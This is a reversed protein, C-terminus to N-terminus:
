NNRLKKATGFVFSESLIIIADRVPISGTDSSGSDGTKDTLGGLCVCFSANKVSEKKYEVM